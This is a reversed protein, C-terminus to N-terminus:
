VEVMVLGGIDLDLLATSADAKALTSAKIPTEKDGGSGKSGRQGWRDLRRGEDEFLATSAVAKALPSAKIAEICARPTEKDEFSGESGRKDEGSGESGRYGWRGLRRGEDDFLATLAVPKALGSTKIAAACAAPTENVESSGESGRPEFFLRNSAVRACTEVKVLGWSGLDLGKKFDLVTPAAANPLGSALCPCSCIGGQALPSRSKIGGGILLAFFAGDM